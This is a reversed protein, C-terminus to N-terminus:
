CHTPCITQWLRLGAPVASPGFTYRTRLPVASMGPRLIQGRTFGAFAKVREKKGKSPNRKNLSNELSMGSKFIDLFMGCRPDMIITEVKFGTKVELVLDIITLRGITVIRGFSHLVKYSSSVPRPLYGLRSRPLRRHRLDRV